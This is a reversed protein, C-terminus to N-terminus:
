RVWVTVTAAERGTAQDTFRPAQRLEDSLRPNAQLLQLFLGADQGQLLVELRADTAVGARMGISYSAWAVGALLAAVAVVGVVATRVDLRRGLAPLSARVATEVRKVLAAEAEPSLVSYAAALDLIPDGGAVVIGQKALAARLDPKQM